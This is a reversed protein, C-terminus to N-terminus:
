AVEQSVSNALDKLEKLTLNGNDIAKVGYRSVLIKYSCEFVFPLGVILFLGGCIAGNIYSIKRQDNTLSVSNTEVESDEPNDVTEDTENEVEMNETEKDLKIKNYVLKGISVVVTAVLATKVINTMKM